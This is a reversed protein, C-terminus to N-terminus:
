SKILSTRCSLKKVRYRKKSITIGKIIKTVIQSVLNLFTAKRWDRFILFCLALWLVSALLHIGLFGLVDAPKLFPFYEQMFHFVFLVPVICSNLLAYRVEPWNPMSM